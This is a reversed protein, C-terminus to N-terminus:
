VQSKGNEKFSYYEEGGIIIHDLFDIGMLQCVAQINSTIDEDAKSPRTDGSPHNHVLIIGSAGCLLTRIMIERGRVLSMNVTGHSVEFLSILEGHTTLALLYVYEEAMSGLNFIDNLMQVIEKPHRISNLGEYDTEYEKVLINEHQRTQILNSKIVQM